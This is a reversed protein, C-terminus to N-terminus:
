YFSSSTPNDMCYDCYDMNCETNCDTMCDTPCDTACEAFCGSDRRGADEISSDPDSYEMTCEESQGSDMKKGSDSGADNIGSDYPFEGQQAKQCGAAALAAALFASAAKLGAGSAKKLRAKEEQIVRYHCYPNDIGGGATSVTWRCGGRCIRGYECEACFGELMSPTFRRNYAFADPDHWIDKLSRDRINGELFDDRGDMRSPLSLCGKIWGDSEIGIVRCGAMCGAFFPLRLHGQKRLLEEHPGFYGISDSAIVRTGGKHILDALMPVLVLLDRPRIVMHDNDMMNGSPRGIQVQWAMVGADVLQEHVDPFQFLNMSNVHTIATYQLGAAAANEWADFVRTRTGPGRIFEHTHELGDISVGFTYLGADKATRAVERTFKQGNTIMTPIMGHKAIEEVLRPWDKRLLPEGGSLCIRRCGLEALERIMAFAEQTNLESKRKRGARSGCHLCNLNCALTTEWVATRPVYGLHDIYERM